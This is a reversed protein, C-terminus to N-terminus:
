VACVGRLWDDLVAMDVAEIDGEHVFITLKPSIEGSREAAIFSLILSQILLTKSLKIRAFNAGIIPLSVPERQGADRVLDSAKALAVQLDEISSSVNPPRDTSMRAVAPLFYRARAHRIVAVTGIRYRTTKGFAKAFDEIGEQGVLSADISRDLEDRDGGFVDILLQGQASRPSIVEDELQTDFVDNTGIVM